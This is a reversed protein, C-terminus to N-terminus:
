AHFGTTDCGGERGGGSGGGRGGERGERGGEGGERGGDRGGKRRGGGGGGEREGERGRESQLSISGCPPVVHSMDGAKHFDPSCSTHARISDQEM